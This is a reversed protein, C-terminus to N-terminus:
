HGHRVQGIPTRGRVGRYQRVLSAPLGDNKPYGLGGLVVLRHVQDQLGAVTPDSELDLGGGPDYAGVEPAQGLGASFRSM